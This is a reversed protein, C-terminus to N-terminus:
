RAASANDALAELDVPGDPGASGPDSSAMAFGGLQQAQPTAPKAAPTDVTDPRGNGATTAAASHPGSWMLRRAGRHWVPPCSEAPPAASGRPTSSRHAPM